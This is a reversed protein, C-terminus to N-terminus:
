KFLNKVRDFFGPEGDGVPATMEEALQKILDKQKDTLKTPVDIFVHAYLDGNSNLRNNLKPM